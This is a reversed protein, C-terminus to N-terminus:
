NLAEDGGRLSRVWAVADTGKPLGPVGWGAYERFSRRKGETVLQMGHRTGEFRVVAGEELGLEERVAKPITIQGKSTVKATAAIPKRAM